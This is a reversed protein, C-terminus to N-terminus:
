IYQNYKVSNRKDKDTFSLNYDNSEFNLSSNNIKNLSYNIKRSPNYTSSFYKRYNDDRNSYMTNNFTNVRQNNMSNEVNSLENIKMKLLKIKERYENIKNDKLLNQQYFEQKKHIFINNAEAIDNNIKQYYQKLESIQKKLKGNEDILKNLM